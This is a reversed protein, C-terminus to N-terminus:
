HLQNRVIIQKIKQDLKRLMDEFDDNGEKEKNKRRIKKQM